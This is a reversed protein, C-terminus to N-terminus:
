RMPRTGGGVGFELAVFGGVKSDPDGNALTIEVLEPAGVLRVFAQGATHSDLRAFDGNMQLGFTGLRRAGVQESGGLLGTSHYSWPTVLPMLSLRDTLLFDGYVYPLFEMGTAFSSEGPDYSTSEFTVFMSGGIGLGIGRTPRGGLRFDIGVPVYAPSRLDYHDGNELTLGRSSQVGVGLVSHVLGEFGTMQEVTIAEGHQDLREGHKRQTHLMSNPKPASVTGGEGILLAQTDGVTDVLSGEKVHASDGGEGYLTRDHERVEAVVSGPKPASESGGEGFLVRNQTADSVVLGGKPEAATGGEGYLTKGHEADAEDHRKDAAIRARREDAVGPGEFKKTRPNWVLGDKHCTCDSWEAGDIAVCADYQEAVRQWAPHMPDCATRLCEGITAERDAAPDNTGVEGSDEPEDGGACDNDLGDGAVETAGPKVADNADDCDGGEPIFGQPCSDNDGVTQTTSGGYGDGDGDKYCTKSALATSPVVLAFAVIAMATLQTIKM